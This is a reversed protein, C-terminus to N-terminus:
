VWFQIFYSIKYFLTSNWKQLTLTIDTFLFLFEYLFSGVLLLLFVKQFLLRKRKDRLTHDVSFVLFCLSLIFLYGFDSIYRILMGAKETDFILVIFALLLCLYAMYYCIKEKFYSKFKYLFFPLVLIIHNYLFGGFFPEYIVKGLYNTVVTNMFIYPFIPTVITPQLLYAFIGSPIRELVFGRKTMDNTTLNYNAGFDFISSFRAYNYYMIFLAFIIMPLLLCITEKKSKKSFLKGKKIDDFFFFPALCIAAFFQPRAGVVLALFLSGIALKSKRYKSSITSSIWFGLGWFLFMLGCTIPIHYFTPRKVLYFLGCSSIFLLSLLLYNIFSTKYFWKRIIQYLLYFIGVISLFSFIIISIPIPLHTKMLMYYPLFLVLVPTIGFYVYYKGKYYATDWYYDKYRDLKKKRYYSDYPNKLSKLKESPELMLYFKGKTLSETLGYYQGQVDRDSYQFAPNMYCFFIVFVFFFAGFGILIMKKYKFKQTAKYSYLLSHPRILYITFLLISFVLVRYHNLSFPIMPNLLISDLTIITGKLEDNLKIKLDKINGSVHYKFYQSQQITTFTEKQGLSYYLQNAEDSVYTTLLIPIKSYKAGIKIYLANLPLNVNKSEIYVNKNQTILFENGGKKRLGHYHVQASKPVNFFTSYHKYNFITFEAIYSILFCFVFIFLYFGAMKSNIKQKYIWVQKIFYYFFTHICLYIINQFSFTYYFSKTILFCLIEHFLFFFIGDKLMCMFNIKGKEYMEVSIHSLLFCFLILIYIMFEGNKNYCIESKFSVIRM